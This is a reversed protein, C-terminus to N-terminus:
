KKYNELLHIEIDIERLRDHIYSYKRRKDELENLYKQKENLLYQLKNDRVVNIDKSDIVSENRKNLKLGKFDIFKSIRDWNSLIILGFIFLIVALSLGSM